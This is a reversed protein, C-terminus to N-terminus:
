PLNDKRQEGKGAHADAAREERQATVDEGGNHEDQARGFGGDAAEDCNGRM